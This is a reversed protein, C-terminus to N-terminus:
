QYDELYSILEREKYLSFEKSWWRLFQKESVTDNAHFENEFISAVDYKFNPDLMMLSRETQHYTGKLIDILTEFEDPELCYNDDVDVRQFQIQAVLEDKDFMGDGNADVISFDELLDEYDVKSIKGNRILWLRSFETFDLVNDADNLANSYHFERATIEQHRRSIAQARVYIEAVYNAVNGLIYGYLPVGLIIYITVGQLCLRNPNEASVSCGLLGGTSCATVAFYLGELFPVGEVQSFFLAGAMVYCFTFVGVMVLRHQAVEIVASKATDYLVRSRTFARLRTQSTECIQILLISLVGAVVSSGLMAHAITYAMSYNQATNEKYKYTCKIFTENNREMQSTCNHYIDVGGRKKENLSGFGISFGSNLTWYVAKLFSWDNVLYFYLSSLLLWSAFVLVYVLARHQEYFLHLQGKITMNKELKEIKEKEERISLTITPRRVSVGEELSKQAFKHTIKVSRFTEVLKEDIVLNNVSLMLKVFEKPGLKHAPIDYIGEQVVRFATLISDDNVGAARLGKLVIILPVPTSLKKYMSLIQMRKEYDKFMEDVTKGIDDFKPKESELKIMETSAM